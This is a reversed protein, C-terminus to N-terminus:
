PYLVMEDAEKDQQKIKKQLKGNLKQHAKEVQYLNKLERDKMELKIKLEDILEILENKSLHNRYITTWRIM